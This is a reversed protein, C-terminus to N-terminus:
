IVSLLLTIGLLPEMEGIKIKYDLELIKKYIAKLKSFPFSSTQGFAKQVIYPNMKLKTAIDRSAYGKQKEFQILVMQRFQWIIMSLLYYPDQGENIMRNFMRVSSHKRGSGMLDILAWIEHTASQSVCEQVESSTILDDESYLSLKEIESSLRWMEEGVRELILKVNQNGIRKGRKKFELVVWEALKRESLKEFEEIKGNKKIFTYLSKRKDVSKNEWFIVTANEMKEAGMKLAKDFFEKLERNSSFKSVVILKHSVFMSISDIEKLLELHDVNEGDIRTVGNEGYKKIFASIYGDLRQHSLLPNEGHLLYFM